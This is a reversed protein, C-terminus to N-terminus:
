FRRNKGKSRFRNMGGHKGRRQWPRIEEAIFKGEAQMKGIIKIKQGEAYTWRGRWRANAVDIEWTKGDLDTLRIRHNPLIKTIEGALLGKEPSMWIMRKHDNVGRYFPIKEEFLAELRESLGSHYLVSGGAVSVLISAVIVLLASFRYGRETHRFYYYAVGTVVILFALWFYPLMLIVFELLGRNLYQYLDWDTHQIQFIAVGSAVSGLLLSLGVALWILFNKFLFYWKPYPEINEEKIKEIIKKNFDSM